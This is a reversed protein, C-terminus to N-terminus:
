VNPPCAWEPVQGENKVVYLKGRKAKKLTWCGGSKIHGNTKCHYCYDFCMGVFTPPLVDVTICFVFDSTNAIQLNRPKYGEEWSRTKPLFEQTPLGLEKAIEIAWKDIGGLHCGGSVVKSIVHDYTLKPTTLLEGILKQAGLKGVPSFKAEESGVIGIIM